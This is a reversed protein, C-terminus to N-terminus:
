KKDLKKNLEKIKDNILHFMKFYLDLYLKTKKDFKIYNLSECVPCSKSFKKIWSTGCDICIIETNKFIMDYNYM